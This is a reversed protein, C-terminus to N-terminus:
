ARDAFGGEFFDFPNVLLQAQEAAVADQRANVGVGGLLRDLDIDFCKVQQPGARRQM